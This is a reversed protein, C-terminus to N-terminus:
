AVHDAHLVEGLSAVVGSEALEFEEDDVFIACADLADGVAGLKVAKRHERGTSAEQYERAVPVVRFLAIGVQEDGLPRVLWSALM